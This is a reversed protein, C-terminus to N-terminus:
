TRGRKKKPGEEGDNMDKEKPESSSPKILKQMVIDWMSDNVGKAKCLQERLNEVESELDSVRSKLSMTDSQGSGESGLPEVFVAHDRLLEEM